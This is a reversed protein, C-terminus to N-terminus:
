KDGQLPQSNKNLTDAALIEERGGGEKGMYEVHDYRANM